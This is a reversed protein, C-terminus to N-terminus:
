EGKTAVLGLKEIVRQMSNNDEETRITAAKGQELIYALVFM